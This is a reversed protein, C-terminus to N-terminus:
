LSAQCGPCDKRKAWRPSNWPVRRARARLREVGDIQLSARTSEKERPYARLAGVGFFVYTSAHRTPSFMNSEFSYSGVSEPYM